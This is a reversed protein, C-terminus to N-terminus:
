FLIKKKLLEIIIYAKKVLVVNLIHSAVTKGM